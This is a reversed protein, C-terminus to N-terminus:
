CVTCETVNVCETCELVYIFQTTETANVCQTCKTISDSDTCELLYVFLTTELAKHSYMM